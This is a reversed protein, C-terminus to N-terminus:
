DRYIGLRLKNLQGIAHRYGQTQKRQRDQNLADIEKMGLNIKRCFNQALGMASSVLNDGTDASFSDECITHDLYNDNM